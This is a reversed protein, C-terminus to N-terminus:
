KKRIKEANRREMNYIIQSGVRSVKITPSFVERIGEKTAEKVLMRQENSLNNQCTEIKTHIDYQKTNKTLLNGKSQYLVHSTEVKHIAQQVWELITHYGVGRFNQFNGKYGVHIREFKKLMDLLAIANSCDLEEKHIIRFYYQVTNPLIFM